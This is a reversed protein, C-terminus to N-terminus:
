CGIFKTAKKSKIGGGNEWVRDEEERVIIEFKKQTNSKRVNAFDIPGNTLANRNLQVTASILFSQWSDLKTM